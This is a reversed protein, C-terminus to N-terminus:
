AAPAIAVNYGLQELQRTLRRAQRQPDYRQIFCDSGLERYHEGTSLMHCASVIMSHAVAVTAENPGRRAALRRYQAALYTDSKRAASRRVGRHRPLRQGARRASRRGDPRGVHHAPARGPPHRVCRPLGPRHVRTRRQDARARGAVGGPGSRGHGRRDLAHLAATGRLLGVHQRHEVGVLHLASRVLGAAAARTADGTHNLPGRQDDDGWRGWNSLERMWGHVTEEAPLDGRPSTETM